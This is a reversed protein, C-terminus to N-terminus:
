RGTKGAALQEVLDALNGVADLRGLARAAAAASQLEDPAAFVGALGDTLRDPTLDSQEICWAAGADALRTANELQDNDLSHPLPVLVSPCGIATLEAITTAGGRGIVLHAEGIWRPLDDFFTECTANLGGDAYIARVRDIDEPRCQQMVYLRSRIDAPLNVVGPPVFDSFFRAGQSGGFILLHIPDGPGPARYQRAASEVVIARVPNGTFRVKMKMDGEVFKVEEFSTAIANVRGALMRNARGLVANQEHLATPISRLAAAVIPPFSPYGGFGIVADPRVEGIIKHAKRVGGALTLATKTLAIPSRSTTTASPIQHIDRGPFEIDYQDARSDTALDVDYGRRGLEEALAFAPFLHGGSGGAALMITKNM